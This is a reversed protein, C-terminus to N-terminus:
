GTGDEAERAPPDEIGNRESAGGRSRREPPFAGLQQLSTDAPRELETLRNAPLASRTRAVLEATSAEDLDLTRALAARGEVSAALAVVQEASDIWHERLKALAEVSWFGLNDLPIM